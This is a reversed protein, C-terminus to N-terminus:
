ELHMQGVYNTKKPSSTKIHQSHYHILEMKFTSHTDNWYSHGLGLIQLNQTSTHFNSFISLDCTPSM